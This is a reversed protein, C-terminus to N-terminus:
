RENEQRSHEALKEELEKLEPSVYRETNVLSQKRIYSEPVKEAHRKTVEIYYGYIKNYGIKLSPISCRDRERTEIEKIADMSNDCYSRLEDLERDYGKRIFGGDRFTAPHDENVAKELLECLEELNDWATIIEASPASEKLGEISARIGPLAGLSGALSSFDRPNFSNAAIRGSAREFDGLQRLLSRLGGCVSADEFFATVLERRKMIASASVLPKVIWQRLLRAGMATETKDLIELLTGDRGGDSSNSIIELNKISAADIVMEGGSSEWRISKIAGLSSPSTQRVYYIVAGAASIAQARGDLGFGELTAVGFQENLRRVAEDPEFALPELKEYKHGSAELATLVAGDGKFTEAVIIEKPRLRELEDAM